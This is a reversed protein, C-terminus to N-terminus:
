RVQEKDKVDACPKVVQAAAGQVLENLSPKHSKGLCEELLGLYEVLNAVNEEHISDAHAWLRENSITGKVEEIETSLEEATLDDLSKKNNNKLLEETWVNLFENKSTPMQYQYGQITIRVAERWNEAETKSNDFNCLFTGYLDKLMYFESSDNIAESYSFGLADEFLQLGGPNSDSNEIDIGFYAALQTMAKSLNQKDAQLDCTWSKDCDRVIYFHEGYDEIRDGSPLLGFSTTVEFIKDLTERFVDYYNSLSVPIDYKALIIVQNINDWFGDLDFEVDVVHDIELLKKHLEDVRELIGFHKATNVTRDSLAGDVLLIKDGCVAEKVGKIEQNINLLFANGGEDLWAHGLNHMEILRSREHPVLEFAYGDCNRKQILGAELLENFEVKTFGNDLLSNVPWSGSYTYGNKIYENQLFVFLSESKESLKNLM